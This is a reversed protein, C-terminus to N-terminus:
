HIKQDYHVLNQPPFSLMIDKINTLFEARSMPHILHFVSQGKDTDIVFCNRSDLENRILDSLRFNKLERAIHRMAILKDTLQLHINSEQINYHNLKRM